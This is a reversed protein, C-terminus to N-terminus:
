LPHPLPTPPTPQNTLPSTPQSSTSSPKSSTCSCPSTPLQYRKRQAKGSCTTTKSVERELGADIAARSPAVHRQYSHGTPLIVLASKSLSKASSAESLPM